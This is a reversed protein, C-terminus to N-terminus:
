VSTIQAERKESGGVVEATFYSCGVWMAKNVEMAKFIIHSSNAELIQTYTGQVREQM